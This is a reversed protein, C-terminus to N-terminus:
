KVSAAYANFDMLKETDAPNSMKVKFLWGECHPARNVLAPDAAVAENIEIVEGSVPSYIDSASKVSEIVCAQKGANLAAGPKPLEVFVIDSIEHQAHDSIGVVATDGDVFVWEHTPAFKCKEQNYM